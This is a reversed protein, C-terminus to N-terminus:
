ARTSRRHGPQALVGATLVPHSIGRAVPYATFGGGAAFPQRSPLGFAQWSAQSHLAFSQHSRPITDDYSISVVPSPTSPEQYRNGIRPSAGRSAGDPKTGRGDTVRRPM